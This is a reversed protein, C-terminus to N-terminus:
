NYTVWICDLVQLIAAGASGGIAGGIAGAAWGPITGAGFTVTGGVVAGAIGGAIGYAIDNKAVAGGSLCGKSYDISEDKSGTVMRNWRPLNADWYKASSIAISVAAYLQDKDVLDSEQVVLYYEEWDAVQSDIDKSPDWTPMAELMNITKELAPLTAYPANHQETTKRGFQDILSESITQPDSPDDMKLALFERSALKVTNLISNKNFEGVRQGTISSVLALKNYTYDLGENHFEGVSKWQEILQDKSLTPETDLTSCATLLAAFLLLLYKM